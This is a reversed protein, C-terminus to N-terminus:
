WVEYGGHRAAIENFAFFGRLWELEQRVDGFLSKTIDEWKANSKFSQDGDLYALFLERVTGKPVKVMKFQRQPRGEAYEILFLRATEKYAQMFANPRSRDELILFPDEGAHDLQDIATLVQEPSPSDINASHPLKLCPKPLTAEVPGSEWDNAEAMLKDLTPRLANIIAICEEPLVHWGDNSNFKFFPIKGPRPCVASRSRNEAELYRRLIRLERPTAPPEIVSQEADEAYFERLQEAREATLGLPPWAPWTAESMKRDLVGCDYLIHPVGRFYGPYKRVVEPYDAPVATPTRVMSLDLGM